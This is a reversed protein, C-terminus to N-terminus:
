GAPPSWKFTRDRALAKAALEICRRCVAAEPYAPSQWGPEGARSLTERDEERELCMACRYGGEVSEDGGRVMAAYAVSLCRGCICSGQHGEIMPEEETWERHCFDCLVDSMQVNREDIGPKRM